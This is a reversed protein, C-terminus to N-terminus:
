EADGQPRPDTTTDHQREQTDSKAEDLYGAVDIVQANEEGVVRYSADHATMQARHKEVVQKPCADIFFKLGLLILTIDDLQGLGPVM